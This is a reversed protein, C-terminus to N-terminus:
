GSSWVGFRIQSLAEQTLKATECAGQKKRMCGQCAVDIPFFSFAGREDRIQDEIRSFVTDSASQLERLSDVILKRTEAPPLDQPITHVQLSM